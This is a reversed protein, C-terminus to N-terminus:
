KGEKNDYKKVIYCLTFGIAGGFAMLFYVHLDDYIEQWSYPGMGFPSAYKHSLVFIVFWGIFSLLFFLIIKHTKM